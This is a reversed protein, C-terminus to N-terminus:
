RLVQPDFSFSVPLVDDNFGEPLSGFARASAAAEIAGQAELDFPYSGSRTIFRLNTVSGDRHILFMVEARLRMDRDPPTFRLAIQRVINNLYGPFPFDIGATQVTAVDAGRGGIPGGGAVPAPASSAPQEQVPAPTVQRPARGTPARDPSAMTRPAVEATPRPQAAPPTEQQTPPRVEGIARPGPPAAVINVRYIPPLVPPPADRSTWWMAALMGAHLFASATAPATLRPSPLEVTRM